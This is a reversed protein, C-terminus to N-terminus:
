QCHIVVSVVVLHGAIAVVIVAILKDTQRDTQGGAYRLFSADM